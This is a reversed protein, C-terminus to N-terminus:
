KSPMTINMKPFAKTVNVVVNAMHKSHLAGSVRIQRGRAEPIKEVLDSLNRIQDKSGACVVVNYRFNVKEFMGPYESGQGPFMVVATNDHDQSNSFGKCPNGFYETDAEYIQGKVTVAHPRLHSDMKINQSRCQGNDMYHAHPNPTMLVSDDGINLFDIERSGGHHFSFKNEMKKGYISFGGVIFPREV